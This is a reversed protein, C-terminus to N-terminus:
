GLVMTMRLALSTIKYTYWEIYVNNAIHLSENKLLAIGIFTHLFWCNEGVRIGLCCPLPM